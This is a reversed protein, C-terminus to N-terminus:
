VGSWGAAPKRELRAEPALERVRKAFQRLPGESAALPGVTFAEAAMGAQVREILDKDELSVQRNIRWNLYRAARMERREDPLAYAVERIVTETPSVPQWVMFDVQDPYLDFAVNPWLKFYVWRRRAVDPLHEAEPLWRAYMRESWTAKPGAAVPGEMRDAWEAAEAKYGSGMLRTLGPHAVPIHLADSYNDGVVKWNVARTRVTVRGLRRMEPLRYRAIEAAYPAMMESVSPGDGELRVFVFGEWVELALPHLRLGALAAPDYARREPVGELAGNLGYTWAHYPCVLKRATGCAGDLIRAGRHRCVNLMARLAGDAQRVVVVPEGLVEIAQWDGPGAFDSEHAVVQWGPRLIRAREVELFGADRYTWAPLSWGAQVDAEVTRVLQM